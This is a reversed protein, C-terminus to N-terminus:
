RVKGSGGCNECYSTGRCAGCTTPPSTFIKGKGRCVPCAGTGDCSWCPQITTSQQSQNYNNNSPTYVNKNLMNICPTFSFKDKSSSAVAFNLIREGDFLSLEVDSISKIILQMYMDGLYVDIVDGNRGYTGEIEIDQLTTFSYFYYIFKDSSPSFSFRYYECINEPNQLQWKKAISQSLASQTSWFFGILVLLILLLKTKM